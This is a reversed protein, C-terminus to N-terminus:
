KLKEISERVVQQFEGRRLSVSRISSKDNKFGAILKAESGYEVLFIYHGEDSLSEASVLHTFDSTAADSELAPFAMECLHEYAEEASVNFLHEDEVQHNMAHLSGLRHLDVGLTSQLSWVLKGSVFYGFCGNAFSDTSWSDVKDCWIAFTDPNGTLM